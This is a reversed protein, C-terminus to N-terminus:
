EEGKMIAKIEEDSLFEEFRAKLDKKTNITEAGFVVYGDELFKKYIARGNKLMDAPDLQKIGKQIDLIKATLGAGLKAQLRLPNKNFQLMELCKDINRPNINEDLMVRIYKAVQPINKAYKKKLWDMTDQANSILEYVFFRDHLPDPLENLYVQGDTGDNMNGAGVIQAYRISHGCWERQEPDIHCISYLCNMVEVPAQNMEDFFLIYDKGECEFLPQLMENLILTFYETKKEASVKAYPVGGIFEPLMTALPFILLKKGVKKAYERVISSKGIGKKGYVFTNEEDTLLKAFDKQRIQPIEKGDIKM